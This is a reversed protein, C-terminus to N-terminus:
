KKTNKLEGDIFACILNRDHPSLEIFEAGVSVKVAGQASKDCIVWATKAFIVLAPQGPSLRLKIELMDGRGLQTLPSFIPDQSFLDEAFFRIGAESIDSFYTLDAEAAQKLLRVHVLRGVELRTFKRRNSGSFKM